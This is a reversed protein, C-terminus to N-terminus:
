TPAAVKPKLSCAAIQDPDAALKPSRCGSLAGSEDTALSVAPAMCVPATVNVDDPGVCAARQLKVAADYLSMWGPPYVLETPIPVSPVLITPWADVAPTSRAPRQFNAGSKNISRCGAPAAMETALSTSPLM